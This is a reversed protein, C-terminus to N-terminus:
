NDVRRMAEMKQNICSKLVKGACNLFDLICACKLFYYVNNKHRRTAIIGANKLISLHKSVASIGCDTKDALDCVCVSDKALCEIICIRVPHALAKIIDAQVKHYDTIKTKTKSTM